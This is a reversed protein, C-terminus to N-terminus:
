PLSLFLQLLQPFNPTGLGTVPDWGPSACFGTTGCGGTCGSTIDNFVGPNAYLVPNVFGVPGKGVLAREQNILTFLSGM